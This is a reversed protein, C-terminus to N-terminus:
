YFRKIVELMKQLESTLFIRGETLLLIRLEEISRPLINVIQVASFRSINFDKTLKEILAEARQPDIKSFKSSVDLTLNQLASLEGSEKRKQLFDRVITYPVEIKEIVKRSIFM